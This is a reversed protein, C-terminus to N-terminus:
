KRGIFKFKDMVKSAIDRFKSNKGKGSIKDTMLRNYRKAIDSMKANFSKEAEDRNKNSELEKLYRGMAKQKEDEYWQEIEDEEM